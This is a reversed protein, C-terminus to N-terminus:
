ARSRREGHDVDVPGQHRDQRADAVGTSPAPVSPASRRRKRRALLLVGTHVITATMLAVFPLLRVIPWFMNALFVDQLQTSTFVGIARAFGFVLVFGLPVAVIWLGLRAWRSVGITPDPPSFTAPTPPVPAPPVPASMVPPAAVPAAVTAASAPGRGASPTVVQTADDSARRTTRYQEPVKLVRGCGECPFAPQDAVKGLPHKTGCEPCQLVPAV